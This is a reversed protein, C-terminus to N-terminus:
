ALNERGIALGYLGIHSYKTTRKAGIGGGKKTAERLNSYSLHGFREVQSWHLGKTQALKFNTRMLMVM